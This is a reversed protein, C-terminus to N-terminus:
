PLPTQQYLALRWSGGDRVYTSSMAARFPEEDGDRHATGLYVLSAADAGLTVLREGELDFRAWPPADNLSAAVADRDLVAGNALVMVGDDTMIRGYFDAGTRDCLSEWGRRELDILEDLTSMWGPESNQHVSKLPISM